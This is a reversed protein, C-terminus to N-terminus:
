TISSTPVSSPETPADSASSASLPQAGPAIAIPPQQQRQVKPALPIAAMCLPCRRNRRRIWDKLCAAHFLHHCPLDGVRDGMVLDNLCISCTCEGFREGGSEDANIDGGGSNSDIEGVTASDNTTKTMAVGDYSRTKLLVMTTTALRHSDGRVALPASVPVLEVEHRRLQRNSVELLLATFPTSGPILVRNASLPPPPQPDGAASRAEGDRPPPLRPGSSSSRIPAATSQQQMRQRQAMVMEHRVRQRQLMWELEDHLGDEFRDDSEPVRRCIRKKAYMRAALGKPSCFCLFAYFALLFMSLPFVYKAYNTNTDNVCTVTLVPPSSAPRDLQAQCIPVFDPCYYQQQALAAAPPNLDEVCDCLRGYVVSQSANVNNSPQQSSSSSSSSTTDIAPQSEIEQENRTRLSRWLWRSGDENRSSNTSNSQPVNQVVEYRHSTANWQLAVLPNGKVYCQKVNKYGYTYILTQNWLKRGRRVSPQRESDVAIRPESSQTLCPRSNGGEEGPLQESRDHLPSKPLLENTMRGEGVFANLESFADDKRDMTGKQIQNSPLNPEGTGRKKKSSAMTSLLVKQLPAV